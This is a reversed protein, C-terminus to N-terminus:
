PADVEILGGSGVTLTTNRYTIKNGEVKVTDGYVGYFRQLYALDCTVVFRAGVSPEPMSSDGGAMKDSPFPFMWSAGDSDTIRVMAGYLAYHGDAYHSITYVQSNSILQISDTTESFVQYSGKLGDFFADKSLRLKFECVVGNGLIWDNAIDYSFGGGNNWGDIGGVAIHDGSPACGFVTAALCVAVLSLVVGWLVKRRFDPLGQEKAACGPKKQDLIPRSEAAL